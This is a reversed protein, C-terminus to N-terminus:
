ATAARPGDLYALTSAHAREILEGSRTFDNYRLRGPDLAPPIIVEVRSPVADRELAFRADRAISMAQVLAEIPRRPAPRERRFSGVHLIVVRTAGLALARSVPVNNVVAGDIFLRGEIEVPPLVAPMACSALIPELVPGERFWREAGTALDTAIVHLPIRPEDFREFALNAVLMARLAENGHLSLGRRGLAVLGGLLGSPCLTEGRMKHWLRALADMGDATPDAVLGAGNVAGVSCGVVEDPLIGRDLLGRLMGVQVAGLNGGGGLVFVTHPKETVLSLTRMM